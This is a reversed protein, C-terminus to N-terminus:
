FNLKLWMAATFITPGRQAASSIDRQATIIHCCPPFISTANSLLSWVWIPEEPFTHTNKYGNWIIFSLLYFICKSLQSLEVCIDAVICLGEADQIKLIGIFFSVSARLYKTKLSKFSELQFNWHCSLFCSPHGSVTNKHNIRWIHM